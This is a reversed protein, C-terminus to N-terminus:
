RHKLPDVYFDDLHWSADSGTPAFTFTVMVAGSQVSPSVISGLFMVSPTLSWTSTGSLSTVFTSVPKGSSNTYNVTVNLASASSGLNRVFFRMNPTQMNVCFTPTTLTSATGLAASKSDMAGSMSGSRGSRSDTVAVHATENDVVTTVPGTTKWGTLGAEFGGNALQFYPNLDGFSIFPTTLQVECNGVSTDASAFPVGVTGALATVAAALLLKRTKITKVPM